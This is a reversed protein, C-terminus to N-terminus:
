FSAHKFKFEEKTFGNKSRTKKTMFTCIGQKDSDLNFVPSVFVINNKCKILIEIQSKRTLYFGNTLSNM